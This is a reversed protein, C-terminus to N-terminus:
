SEETNTRRRRPKNEEGGPEATAEVPALRAPAERLWGSKQMQPVASEAFEHWRDLNPHYLRVTQM